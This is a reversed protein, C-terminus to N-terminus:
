GNGLVAVDLTEQVRELFWGLNNIVMAFIPSPIQRVKALRQQVAAEDVLGQANVIAPWPSGMYSRIHVVAAYENQRRVFERETMSADIVKDSGDSLRVHRIRAAEDAVLRDVHAEVGDTVTTYVVELGKQVTESPPIIMVRQSAVGNMLFEGIDLPGVRKEITKRQKSLSGPDKEPYLVEYIRRATRADCRLTDAIDEPEFDTAEPESQPEEEKPEPRDRNAQAVAELAQATGKSLASPPPNAAGPAAQMRPDAQLQDFRPTNEMDGPRESAGARSRAKARELVSKRDPGGAPSGADERQIAKSPPGQNRNVM